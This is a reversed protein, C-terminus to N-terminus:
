TDAALPLIIVVPRRQAVFSQSKRRRAARVEDAGLVVLVPRRVCWPLPPGSATELTRTTCGSDRINTSDPSAAPSGALEPSEVACRLLADAKQLRRLAVPPAARAGGGIQPRHPPPGIQRDLGLRVGHLFGAALPTAGGADLIRAPAFSRARGRAAALHDHAGARDVRWLKEHQGADARYVVEALMADLDHQVQRADPFVQLVM